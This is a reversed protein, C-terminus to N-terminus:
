APEEVLEEVPEEEVPATSWRLFCARKLAIICALITFMYDFYQRGLFFGSIVFGVLSFMFMNAYNAAIEDGCM